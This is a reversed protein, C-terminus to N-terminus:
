KIKKIINIKIIKIFLQSIFFLLKLIIKTPSIQKSLANYLFLFSLVFYIESDVAPLRIFLFISKKSFNLKKNLFASLHIPFKSVAIISSSAHSFSKVKLESSDLM